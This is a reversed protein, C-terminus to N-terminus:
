FRESENNSFIMSLQIKVKQSLTYCYKYMSLYIMIKRIIEHCEIRM